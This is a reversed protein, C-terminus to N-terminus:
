DRDQYDHKRLIFRSNDIYEDRLQQNLQNNDYWPADHEDAAYPMPQLADAGGMQEVAHSNYHRM